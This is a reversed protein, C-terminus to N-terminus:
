GRAKKQDISQDLIGVSIAGGQKSCGEMGLRASPIKKVTAVIM